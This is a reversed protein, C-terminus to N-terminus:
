SKISVNLSMKEQLHKLAKGHIRFIQRVDYGMVEAVEEWTMGALYYNRLVDQETFSRLCSIYREADERMDVYRDIEDTIREELEILRYVADTQRNGPLTRSTQVKVDDYSMGSIGEALDKLRDKQALLSDIHRSQRRISRLYEKATM